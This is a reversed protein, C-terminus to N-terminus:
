IVGSFLVPVLSGYKSAIEIEIPGGYGQKLIKKIVKAKHPHYVDPVLSILSLENRIIDSISHGILKLFRKNANTIKRDSTTFVIGVIDSNLLHSYVLHEREAIKETLKRDTVDIASVIVFSNKSKGEILT